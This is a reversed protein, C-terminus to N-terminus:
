ALLTKLIPLEVHRKATIAYFSETVAKLSAYNKLLGAQIEQQVVIEPVVAVAGAGRALLRLMAMDDVEAYPRVAIGHQECYLDFQTRMDNDPGPLLVRVKDLDRPFRLNEFDRTNPGVICVGQQAIQKCRWPTTSDAAVPRNSLILDLKHVRLQELLDEFNSAKLVLKINDQGIVPRLFNEQFNRSLTAVAGIHLKQVRQHEGTEMVSLLESGLNFISEAYELVLHGVDTLLLTRGQRHFLDHKLQGELQKIQSSLASQSVNLKEAARTLHGEKAVTWFYYLHHFNLNRM